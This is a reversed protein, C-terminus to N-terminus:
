TVQMESHETSSNQEFFPHSKLVLSDHFQPMGCVDMLKRREDDMTIRSSERPGLFLLHAGINEIKGSERPGGKTRLKETKFVDLVELPVKVGKEGELIQSIQTSLSALLTLATSVTKRQRSSTGREDNAVVNDDEAELAMLGLTM